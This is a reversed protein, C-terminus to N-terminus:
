QYVWESVSGSFHSPANFSLLFYRKGSQLQYHLLPDTTTNPSLTVPTLNISDHPNFTLYSTTSLNTVNVKFYSTGYLLYSLYLKSYAAQGSFTYVGQTVINWAQTPQSTGYTSLQNMPNITSVHYNKSFDEMITPNREAAFATISLSFILILTFISTTLRKM